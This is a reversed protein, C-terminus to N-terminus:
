PYLANLSDLRRIHRGIQCHIQCDNQRNHRLNIYLLRM